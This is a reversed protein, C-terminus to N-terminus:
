AAERERCCEDKEVEGTAIIYRSFCLGILHSMNMPIPGDFIGIQEPVFDIECRQCWLHKAFESWDPDDNGCNPCGSIEYVKPRQIYVWERRELKQTSGFVREWGIRYAQTM